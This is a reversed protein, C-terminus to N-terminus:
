LKQEYKSAMGKAVSSTAIKEGPIALQHSEERLKTERLLQDTDLSQLKSYYDATKKGKVAQQWEPQVKGDVKQKLHEGTVTQGHEAIYQKREEFTKELETEARENQYQVLDYDYWASRLHEFPEHNYYDNSM